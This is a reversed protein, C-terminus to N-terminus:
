GIFIEELTKRDNEYGQIEQMICTARFSNRTNKLQKKLNEIETAIEKIIVTAGCVNAEKIYRETRTM